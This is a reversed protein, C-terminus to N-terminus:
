DEARIVAHVFVLHWLHWLHPFAVFAVLPFIGRIFFCRNTANLIIGCIFVYSFEAQPM